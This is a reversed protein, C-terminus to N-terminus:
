YPQRYKFYLYLLFPFLSIYFFTSENNQAILSARLNNRNNFDIFYYPFINSKIFFFFINSISTNKLTIDLNNKKNYQNKSLKFIIEFNPIILFSGFINLLFPDV